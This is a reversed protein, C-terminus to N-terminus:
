LVAEMALAVGGMTVADPGFPSAVVPCPGRVAALAPRALAREVAPLLYPVVHTLSGALVVREPDLVDVLDALVRGLLGGLEDLLALVRADGDAAAAAAGEYGAVVAGREALQATVAHESLYAELCGRDGCSCARGGEVVTM